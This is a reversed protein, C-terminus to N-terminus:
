SKITMSVSACWGPSSTTPISTATPQTTGPRTTLPAIAEFAPGEEAPGSLAKPWAEGVVALAKALAFLARKGDDNSSTSVRLLAASRADQWALALHGEGDELLWGKGNQLGATDRWEVATASQMAFQSLLGSLSAEGLMQFLMAKTSQGEVTASYSLQFVNGGTTNPAGLSVWGNPLAVQLDGASFTLSKLLAADTDNFPEANGLRRHVTTWACANTANFVATGDENGFTYSMQGIRRGGLEVPWDDLVRHLVGYIAGSPSVVTAGEGPAVYHAIVGNSVTVGEPFLLDASREDSMLGPIRSTTPTAESVTVLTSEVLTSELTTEAAGEPNLTSDAVTDAPAVTTPGSSRNAIAVTGAVGAVAIIAAAVLMPRRSRVPEATRRLELSRIPLDGPTPSESVVDHLASRISHDLPDHQRDNM